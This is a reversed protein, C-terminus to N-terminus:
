HKHHEMSRDLRRLLSLLAHQEEDTLASMHEQLFDEQAPVVTEALAEGKGTLYLQKSRRDNPDPRREVLGLMEMRDLLGCTNGKTVLLRDSLNQQNIGPAIKVQALVDFQAPTLRDFCELHDAAHHQMKNHVKVMHLWALLGAHKLGPM